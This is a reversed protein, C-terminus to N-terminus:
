RDINGASLGDEEEDLLGKRQLRVVYTMLASSYTQLDDSTVGKSLMERRFEKWVAKDDNTRTTLASSVSGDGNRMRAAIDNVKDMLESLVKNEMRAQSSIGLISMFASLSQKRKALKETLNDLNKNGFRIRDWNKQRSGSLGLSKHKNIVSELETVLSHCNKYLTRWGRFDNTDRSLLSNPTKAEEEMRTLLIQLEALDCTISAYKGCATKWGNYTRTTLQVLTLIDTPSFGFSM